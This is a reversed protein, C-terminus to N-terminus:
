RGSFSGTDVIVTNFGNKKAHEVAAIAIAVPDKSDEQHFVEVGIQEGLVRLQQVAAPRYVDCAVLLPRKSKKRKLYSALKGSFTTKGSGQLGAILIIAKINLEVAEGGMLLAMEDRVIGRM